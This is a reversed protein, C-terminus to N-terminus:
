VKSFYICYFSFTFALVGTDHKAVTFYPFGYMVWIHVTNEIFKSMNVFYSCIITHFPPTSIDFSTFYNTVWSTSIHSEWTRGLGGITSCVKTGLMTVWVRRLNHNKRNIQHPPPTRENKLTQPLFPSLSLLQIRKKEGEFEM